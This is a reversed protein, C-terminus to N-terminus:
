HSAPSHHEGNYVVDGLSGDWRRTAHRAAHRALHCARAQTPMHQAMPLLWCPRDAKAVAAKPSPVM